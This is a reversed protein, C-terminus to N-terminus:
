GTGAPPLCLNADDPSISDLACSIENFLREAEPMIGDYRASGNQTGIILGLKNRLGVLYCRAKRTPRLRYLKLVAGINVDNIWLDGGTYEFRVGSFLGDYISGLRGLIKGLLANVRGNFKGASKGGMEWVHQRYQDLGGSLGCLYQIDNGAENILEGVDYSNFYIQDGEFTWKEDKSPSFTLRHDLPLDSAGKVSEGPRLRAKSPLDRIRNIESSM